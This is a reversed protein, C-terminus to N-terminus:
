SALCDVLAFLGDLGGFLSLIAFAAVGEDCFDDLTKGNAIGYVYHALWLGYLCSLAMFFVMQGTIM